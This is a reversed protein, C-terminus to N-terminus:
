KHVQRDVQTGKHRDKQKVTQTGTRREPYMDTWSYVYRDTHRNQRGTQM